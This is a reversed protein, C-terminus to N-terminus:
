ANFSFSFETASSAGASVGGSIMTFYNNINFDHLNHILIQGHGLTLISYLGDNTHVRVTISLFLSRLHSKLKQTM